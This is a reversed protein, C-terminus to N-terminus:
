PCCGPQTRACPPQKRARLNTTQTAEQCPAPRGGVWVPEPLAPPVPDVAFSLPASIVCAGATQEPMGNPICRREGRRTFDGRQAARGLHTDATVRTGNIVRTNSPINRRSSSCEWVSRVSRWPRQFEVALEKFPGSLCAADWNAAKSCTLM